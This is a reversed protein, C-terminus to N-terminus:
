DSTARAVTGSSGTFGAEEPASAGNWLSQVLWGSEIKGRDGPIIKSLVKISVKTKVLWRTREIFQGCKILFESDTFFNIHVGKNVDRL